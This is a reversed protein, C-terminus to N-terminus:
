LRNKLVACRFVTHPTKKFEETLIMCLLKRRKRQINIREHWMTEDEKGSDTGGTENYRAAFRRL